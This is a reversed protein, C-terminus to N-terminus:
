GVPHNLNQPASGKEEWTSYLDTSDQRHMQSVLLEKGACLASKTASAVQQSTSPGRLLTVVAAVEKKAWQELALRFYRSELQAAQKNLLTICDNLTRAVEKRNKLSSLLVYDRQIKLEETKQLIDSIKAKLLNIPKRREIDKRVGDMVSSVFGWIMLGAFGLIFLVLLSVDANSM